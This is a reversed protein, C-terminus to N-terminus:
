KKIIDQLRKEIRLITKPPHNQKKAFALAQKILEISSKKRNNALMADALYVLGVIKRFDTSNFEKCINNLKQAYLLNDKNKGLSENVLSLFLYLKFRYFTSPKCSNFYKKSDLLSSLSNEFQKTKFLAEGLFLYIVGLKKNDPKTKKSEILLSQQLYPIAKKYKNEKFYSLALNRYFKPLRKGKEASSFMVIDKKAKELIYCAKKSDNSDYYLYGSQMLLFRATRPIVLKGASKNFIEYAMVLTDAAKHKEGKKAYLTGISIYISATATSNKGYKKEAKALAKKYSKLAKDYKGQSSYKDGQSQFRNIQAESRKFEESNVNDVIYKLEEKGDAFVFCVSVTLIWSLIYKKL